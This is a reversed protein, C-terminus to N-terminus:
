EAAQKKAPPPAQAPGPILKLEGQWPVAERPSWANVKRQRFLWAGNRKVCVEDRTGAHRRM